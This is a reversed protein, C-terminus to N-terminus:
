RPFTKRESFIKYENKVQQKSIGEFYIYNREDEMTEHGIWTTVKVKFEIKTVFYFHSCPYPM